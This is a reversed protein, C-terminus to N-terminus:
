GMSGCVLKNTTPRRWGAEKKIMCLPGSSHGNGDYSPRKIEGGQITQKQNVKQHTGQHTTGAAIALNVRLHKGWNRKVQLEALEATRAILTVFPIDSYIFM